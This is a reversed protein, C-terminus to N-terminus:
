KMSVPASYSLHSINIYDAIADIDKESLDPFHTMQTGGFKIKLDRTYSDHIMFSSSNHIWQYLKKRDRWPGRDEFNALPPGVLTKFISHCSACNKTFLNKGDVYAEPTSEPMNYDIVTPADAM